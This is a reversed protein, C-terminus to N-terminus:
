PSPGLKIPMKTSKVAPATVAENPQDVDDDSDNGGLLMPDDDDDNNEIEDVM